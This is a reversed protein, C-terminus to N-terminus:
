PAEPDAICPFGRLKGWVLAFLEADVHVVVAAAAPAPHSQVGERDWRKGYIDGGDLGEEPAALTAGLDLNSAAAKAAVDLAQCDENALLLARLQLHAHAPTDLAEGGRSLPDPDSDGHGHPIIVTVQAAAREPAVLSAVASSRGPLVGVGVASHGRGRLVPADWLTAEGVLVRRVEDGLGGECGNLVGVIHVGGAGLVVIAVLQVIRCDM